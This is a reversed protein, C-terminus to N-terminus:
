TPVPLVFSQERSELCKAANNAVLVDTRFCLETALTWAENEVEWKEIKLGCSEAENRYIPRGHDKTTKPTLFLAIKKQIMSQPFAKMMGSALSRVAIDRSLELATRYEKIEREDYNALQQLYPQLNGKERTARKFLDEYSEILNYVSFRKRMGDEIVTLQPDVAGLESSPGMIIKAAGFCVMTAASKAKGPVLAWFDGTKSYSRCLNIIREAAMGDGGPSNILLVLGKALDMCQLLAELMDADDTDLIVEHHFSTCLSVVPRGLVRELAIFLRKRTSHGQSQEEGMRTIVSFPTTKAM